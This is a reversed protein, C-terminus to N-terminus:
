QDIRARELPAPSADPRETGTPDQETRPLTVIFTAGLTDGKELTVRGGHREVIARCLALGLGTGPIQESTHLRARVGFIRDAHASPIGIGNDRFVLAYEHRREECRITVIPIEPGRFKIANAILNQFVHVLQERDGVVVPLDGARVHAHSEEIEIRLNELAQRLCTNLDVPRRDPAERDLTLYEVASDLMSSAREACHLVRRLMTATAVDPEGTARARVLREIQQLPERLDHSFLLAVDQLTEAPPSALRSGNVNTPGVRPGTGQAESSRREDGRAPTPTGVSSPASAPATDATPGRTSSEHLDGAATGADPAAGLVDGALEPLQLLGDATKLLWADCVVRGISPMPHEIRGSIVIIRVGPHRRRILAIIEHVSAWSVGDSVIALDHARTYIAEAFALADGVSSV